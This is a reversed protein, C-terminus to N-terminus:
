LEILKQIVILVYNANPDPAIMIEHKKTRIRLFTLEGSSDLEKIFRRARTTLITLLNAYQNQVQTDDITSRIPKGHNKDPRRGRDCHALIVGVVNPKSSLRNFVEELESM